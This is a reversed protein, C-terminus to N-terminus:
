AHRSFPNWGSFLIMAGLTLTSIDRVSEDGDGGGETDGTGQSARDALRGLDRDRLELTLGGAGDAEGAGCEAM